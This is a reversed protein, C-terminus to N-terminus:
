SIVLADLLAVLDDTSSLDSEAYWSRSTERWQAARQLGPADGFDVVCGDLDGRVAAPMLMVADTAVCTPEDGYTTVVTIGAAQRLETTSRMGRDAIRSIDIKISEGEDLTAPVMLPTGSADSAEVRVSRVWEIVDGNPGQLSRVLVPFIFQTGDPAPSVTPTTAAIPASTAPVQTTSSIASTSQGSSCAAAGLLLLGLASAMARTSRGNVLGGKALDGSRWAAERPFRQDASFLAVLEAARGPALERIELETM